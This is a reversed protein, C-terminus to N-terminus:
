DGERIMDLEALLEKLSEESGLGYEQTDVTRGEHPWGKDLVSSDLQYVKFSVDTNLAEELAAKGETHDSLDDGQRQADQYDQIVKASGTMSERVTSTEAQIRKLTRRFALDTKLDMGPLLAQIAKEFGAAYKFKYTKM